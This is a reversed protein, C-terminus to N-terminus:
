AIKRLVQSELENLRQRLQRALNWKCTLSFALQYVEIPDFPKRLILLKDKRNLTSVVEQWSHDAFATCIVIEMEPDVQWLRTVTEVGDWGPPMRMDVFALAYPMGSRVAQEAMHFGAEGQDAFDAQFSEARVSVPADEFLSARAQDLEDSVVATALIKRYDEHISLNDDIVLIHRNEAAKNTMDTLM